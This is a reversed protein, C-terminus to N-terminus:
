LLLRSVVLTLARTPEMESGFALSSPAMVWGVLLPVESPEALRKEGFYHQLLVEHLYALRLDNGVPRLKLLTQWITEQKSEVPQITSYLEEFVEEGAPLTGLPFVRGQYLISLGQIPLAGRNKVQVTLGAAHRKSEVQLPAPAVSEVTLVRLAWAGLAIGRVAMAETTAVELAEGAKGAGRHFTHRLVTTPHQFHLTYEGGRASFVGLYGHTHSYETGPLVEVTGLDLLLASGHLGHEPFLKYAGVIAGLVVLGGGIWYRGHRAGHKGMRWFLVGLASCYALLFLSLIMHSPYLLIPRRLLKMVPHADDLLGLEAFVRSFDIHENPQLMAHWLAKNGQWGSLPHVAYDVALFIVRGKGFFREALLPMEATGVMVQGQRLRARIALLPVTPMPVGYQAAFDPLGDRQEIGLVEVPLLVRLRPEQLLAYQSDGAVIMTGGRALWQRLAISQGETLSQLSVGKVVMASVSDYGSWHQPLEPASIYAVRTHRQFTTALFDLSLDRTLGLIVHEASFAERLDLRQEAIVTEGQRLSVEIPHSISTIPVAFTYRKRSHNPLTIPQTFTTVHLDQRFESGRWVRVALTGTLSVGTNFLHVVVPNWRELRVVRQFGLDVTMTVQATVAGPFLGMCLAFIFFGWKWM